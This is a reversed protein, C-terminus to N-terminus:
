SDLDVQYLCQIHGARLTVLQYVLSLLFKFSACAPFLSSLVAPNLLEPLHYRSGVVRDM